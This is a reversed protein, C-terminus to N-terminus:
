GGRWEMDPSKNPNVLGMSPRQGLTGSLSGLCWSSSVIRGVFCPLTKPISSLRCMDEIQNEFYIVYFTGIGSPFTM